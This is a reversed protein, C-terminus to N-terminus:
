ECEANVYYGRAAGNRIIGGGGHCFLSARRRGLALNGGSSGIATLFLGKGFGCCVM